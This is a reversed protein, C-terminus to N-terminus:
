QAGVNAMAKGRWRRKQAVSKVGRRSKHRGPRGEPLTVDEYQDSDIEM